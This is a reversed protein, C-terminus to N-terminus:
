LYCIIIITDGDIDGGVINNNITTTAKDLVDKANMVGYEDDHVKLPTM